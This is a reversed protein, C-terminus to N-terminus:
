VTYPAYTGVATETMLKKIDSLFGSSRARKVDSPPDITIVKTVVKTVLTMLYREPVCLYLWLIPRHLLPSLGASCPLSARWRAAGLLVHEPTAM